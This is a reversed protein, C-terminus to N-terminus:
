PLIKHMKLTYANVSGETITIPFLELPKYDVRVANIHINGYTTTEIVADGFDNSTGAAGTEDEESVVGILPENTDADLFKITIKSKLGTHMYKVGYQMLRLKIETDTMESFAGKLEAVVKDWLPLALDNLAHMVIAQNSHNEEAAKRSLINAKFIGLVTGVLAVRSNAPRGNLIREAEGDM